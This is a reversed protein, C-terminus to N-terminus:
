EEELDDKAKVQTTVWYSHSGPCIVKRQAETEADIFVPWTEKPQQLPEMFHHMYRAQCM